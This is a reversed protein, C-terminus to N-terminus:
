ANRADLQELLERADPAFRRAIAYVKAAKAIDYAHSTINRAEAYEFWHLPESILGHRAAARFLDKRTRPLDAEEPTANTRLWRQMFKWCLEFTFEFHQIVGARLTSRTVEDLPETVAPDETRLLAAEMAALALRLSQLDLM